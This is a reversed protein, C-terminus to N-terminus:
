YAQGSIECGIRKICTIVFNIATDLHAKSNFWTLTLSSTFTQSIYFSDLRRTSTLALSLPSTFSNFFRASSSFASATSFSVWRSLKCLFTILEAGKKSLGSSCSNPLELCGALENVDQVPVISRPKFVEMHVHNLM